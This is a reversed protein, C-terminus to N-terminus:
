AAGRLIVWAVDELHRYLDASRRVGLLICGHYDDATNRRNTTPKARKIETGVFQEDTAGLKARWFARARGADASEHIHLRFYVPGHPVETEEVFRLFLRLLGPDSNTFRVQQSRRWPKAKAGECWYAIAGLLMVERASLAGLTAALESRSRSRAHAAHAQRLEVAAARRDRGRESWTAAGLVSSPIDRVWHSVSSQSVGLADVIESYRAGGLRLVRARARLDDKANPRATWAPRPTSELWRRLRHKSVPGIRDRIQRLSLGEDARLRRAEQARPDEADAGGDAREAM